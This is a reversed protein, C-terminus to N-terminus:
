CSCLWEEFEEDYLVKCEAYGSCEDVEEISDGGASMDDNPGLGYCDCVGSATNAFCDWRSVGPYPSRERQKDDGGSCALLSVLISSAFLWTRPDVVRHVSRLKM